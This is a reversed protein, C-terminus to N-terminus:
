KDYFGTITEVVYNIQGKTLEPYMPLSLLRGAMKDSVPCEYGFNEYLPLRNLPRPYHIQTSIGSDSLFKKLDDRQETQVAYVHYCHRYNPECKPLALPLSSLAQNYANANDNRQQTWSDLYKLKVSLVAAQLTDLRSNRGVRLHNHKGKQGLRALVRCDDALSKNNTVICGGDGYAGLNKGPYFSFTAIDGFGGVKKGNIEAGHAQSADEVVFLSHYKALKCIGQMDAPQGYFHVPIIAKTRETIAREIRSADLNYFEPDVDVLVPTAGVRNVASATSVWTYAPVIVEDGEGIQLAELAIEIADTGNACAVCHNVELYKAFSLEFNEVIPGGVFSTNELVGSIAEDIESKINDYQSKLDVFPINM